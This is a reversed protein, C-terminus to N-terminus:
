SLAGNAVNRVASLAQRLRENEKRLREIEAELEAVRARSAMPTYDMPEEVQDDLDDDRKVDAMTEGILPADDPVSVATPSFLLARSEMSETTRETDAV